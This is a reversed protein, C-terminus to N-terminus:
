SKGRNLIAAARAGDAGYPVGNPTNLAAILSTSADRGTLGSDALLGLFMRADEEPIDAGDMVEVVLAAEM